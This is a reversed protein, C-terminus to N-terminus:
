LQEELEINVGQEQLADRVQELARATQSKVTGPAIGLHQATEEVSLDVFYRLVVCQRRRPPLAQLARVVALRRDVDGMPDHGPDHRSDPLFSTGVERRWPRRSQDVVATTVARHAYARLAGSRELRSWAVYMKVLADQTADEARQWDGCMLYATRRLERAHGDVFEVFETDDVDRV